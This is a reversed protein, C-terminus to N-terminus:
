GRGFLAIAAEVLDPDLRIGSAARLEQEVQAGVKGASV